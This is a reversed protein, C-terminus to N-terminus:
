TKHPDKELIISIIESMARNYGQSDAMLYAWNAKEYNDAKQCERVKTSVKAELIEALRNRLISSSMFASKIGAKTEADEIGKTWVTKM